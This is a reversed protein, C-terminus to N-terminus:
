AQEGAEDAGTTVCADIELGRNWFYRPWASSEPQANGFFGNITARVASGVRQAEETDPYEAVVPFKALSLGRAVKLLDTAFAIYIGNAQMLTAAKSRKDFLDALVRKLDPLYGRPNAVAVAREECLPALPCAPYLSVLPLLAEQIQGLDGSSRLEGIVRMWQDSTLAAFASAPAFWVKKDPNAAALGAKALRVALNAGIRLGHTDNLLALWLLEPLPGDLWKVEGMQGLKDVFPPIFRSGVQRHDSLVRRRKEGEAM